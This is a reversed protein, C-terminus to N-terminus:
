SLELGARKIKENSVKYSPTSEELGKKWIPPPLNLKQCLDTYLEKRTPHMDNVLNYVGTLRNEICYEVGRVIDDLHIHNTTEEGTGEVEKGSLKAARKEFDRGPGYIGGLRLVCSKPHQLYLEETALLIKGNDSLPALPTQENVVGKESFSGRYVSTSSTYILYLPKEQEHLIQTVRKATELYTEQYNEHNKPAVSIILCDCTDLEAKLEQSTTERLYVVKQCYPALLPIREQTTTSVILTYPSSNFHTLLAMGVYGAGMLFIKVM